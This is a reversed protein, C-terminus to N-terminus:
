DKGPPAITDIPASGPPRETLRRATPRAGYHFSMVLDRVRADANTMRTRRRENDRWTPDTFQEIWVEPDDLNQMLTWRTAGDRLRITGLEHAVAMFERAHAAQVRYEVATVVPGTSPDLDIHPLGFSLREAPDLDLSEETRPLLYRFAVQAMLVLVGATVLVERLGFEEAAQGWLVSGIALSGFTIMQYISLARGSVWAPTSTQVATNFTSIALVWSGGSIAMVIFTLAYLPSLGTIISTVAFVVTSGVMVRYSGFRTRLQMSAFGGIMAGGGFAALLVGYVVPGGGILDRAVLPMMSWLAAGGLGLAAGRILTGRLPAARTVYRLGAVMARGFTEPEMTRPPPTRKWAALVGILGVYSFANFTFALAGGGMAVIAGGLAPATSRALNFGISNLAVAAPLRERPVQESISAQWAPGYLTTGCGILFTLALLSWVAVLDFWALVALVGSAILMTAQAALMVKRRDVIDALAGAAISLLMTPAMAAAQVLAVYDPTSALTTMMWSAGVTQIVTGSNALLAALWISRFAKHELPAFTPGAFLRRTLTDTM